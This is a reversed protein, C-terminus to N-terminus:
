KRNKKKTKNSSKICTKLLMSLEEDLNEDWEEVAQDYEEQSLEDEDPYPDISDQQLFNFGSPGFAAAGIFCYAEDIYTCSITINPEINSIISYIRKFTEEPFDWASVIVISSNYDSIDANEMYCWKAGIDEMYEEADEPIDQDYIAKYFDKPESLDEGFMQNLKDVVQPNESPITIITTVNNAM